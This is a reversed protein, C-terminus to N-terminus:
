APMYIYTLTGYWAKSTSTNVASLYVKGDSASVWARALEGTTAAVVTSINYGPKYSSLYATSWIATGDPAKTVGHIQVTVVPGWVYITVTSTNVVSTVASSGTGGRAIGLTGATLKSTNLSPIDAAVLKRWSANGANGSSPGAFVTNISRATNDAATGGRALALTGSTIKSAALNPIDNAALSAKKGIAGGGLATWAAAATTAGTGGNAVTLPSGLTLGGSLIENGSTDLTRANSRTNPTGNGVIELYTGNADEVNYTGVVHQYSSSALTHYGEAHAYNGSAATETGEAHSTGGSATTNYGEAHSSAGSATCRYGEAHSGSGGSATTNTGEAHSYGGSATTSSGEAHSQSGSATTTDGEAHSCSGSATSRIGEAHSFNGNATAGYGEAHSHAGNAESNFGEAHSYKGNADSSGFSCAYGGQATGTGMVVSRAGINGTGRAGFTFAKATSSSTVYTVEISDGSAPATTFQVYIRNKTIGSTVTTGNVKVTYDTSDAYNTMEFRTTTGDGVFTDTITATGDTGRLDSVYFYANGGKDILQLSHYDGLLHSGDDQGIQFGSPGFSATINSANNGNGDFFAIASQTISVLNNAAKRILLGLSNWLSNSAGAPNLADTSVHAGNTDHWFYQGTAEAVARAETAIDYATAVKSSLPGEVLAEEEEATIGVAAYTGFYGGDYTISIGRSPVNWGNYSITDAPTVRPDILAVKLTGPNFSYGQINGWTIASTAATATPDDITVGGTGYSYSDGDAKVTLGNVTYSDKVDPRATIFGTPLTYTATASYPLISIGGDVECAYGGLRACMSEIADRCTWGSEIHVSQSATFGGVAVNIGTATVIATAIDSPSYDGSSLGLPAYMLGMRGVGKVESESQWTSQETITIYAINVYKYANDVLVGVRVEIEEGILNPANYITASFQTSLVQVPSFAQYDGDASGAGLEIQARKITGAVETGNAYLKMRYAISPQSVAAVYDSSITTGDSYVTIM